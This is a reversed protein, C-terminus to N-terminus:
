AEVPPDRGPAAGAEALGAAPVVNNRVMVFSRRRESQQVHDPEAHLVPPALGRQEWLEPLAASLDTFSEIELDGCNANTRGVQLM